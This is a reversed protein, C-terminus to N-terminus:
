KTVGVLLRAALAYDPESGITLIVLRGKPQRVRLQQVAQHSSRGVAFDESDVHIAVVEGSHEQELTARYRSEYLALARETLKEDQEAVM